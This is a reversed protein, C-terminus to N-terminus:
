LPTLLDEYQLSRVSSEGESPHINEDANTLLDTVCSYLHESTLESTGHEGLEAKTSPTYIPIDFPESEKMGARIKIGHVTGKTKYEKWASGTLYGRVIAEIPLIKYKRVLM